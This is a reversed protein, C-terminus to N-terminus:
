PLRRRTNKYAEKSIEKETVHWMKLHEHRIMMSAMGYSNVELLVYYIVALDLYKEYPVEKLLDKNTERNVLHYVIKGKISQYEKIFEGEFPRQFRVETYLRMIDGVISEVSSGSQFQQYYEELYITPFINLDKEAITLGHRKTANNKVTSHIYVTVNDEVQEKVKVEVAHIFQYYTM